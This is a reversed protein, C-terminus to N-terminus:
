SASVCPKWLRSLISVFREVMMQAPWTRRGREANAEYWEFVSPLIVVEHGTGELEISLRALTEAISFPMQVEKAQRDGVDRCQLASGAVMRERCGVPRQEYATCLNDCLFPCSPKLSNYCRFMKESPSENVPDPGPPMNLQRRFQESLRRCRKELSQRQETPMMGAEEVMRFAEAISLFILYRCCVSCGKRCPVATERRALEQEVIAVLKSSLSRAAPVIDALTAPGNRVGFHLLLPKGFMDRRLDVIDMDTDKQVASVASENLLVIPPKDNM